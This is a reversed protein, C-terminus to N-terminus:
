MRARMSAKGEAKLKKLILETALPHVFHCMWDKETRERELESEDTEKVVKNIFEEELDPKWM